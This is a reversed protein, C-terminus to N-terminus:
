DMLNCCRKITIQNLDSKRITNKYNYKKFYKKRLFTIENKIDNRGRKFKINNVM